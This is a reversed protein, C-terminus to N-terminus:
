SLESSKVDHYCLVSQPVQLYLNGEGIHEIRLRDAYAIGDVEIYDIMKKAAGPHIIYGSTGSTGTLPHRIVGINADWKYEFNPQFKRMKKARTCHYLKEKDMQVKAHSSIQIIGNETAEPIQKVFISDHEVICMSQNNEVCWKYLLYHTTGNAMRFAPCTTITTISTNPIPQYKKTLNYEEHVKDMDRWYVAPYLEVDYGIKKASEVCRKAIKISEIHQETYICVMRM